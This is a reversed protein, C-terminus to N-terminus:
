CLMSVVEKVYANQVEPPRDLIIPADCTQAETVNRLNVASHKVDETQHFLRLVNPLRESRRARVYVRGMAAAAAAPRRGAGAGGIDHEERRPSEDSREDRCSQPTVTGGGLTLLGAGPTLSISGAHGGGGEDAALHLVDTDADCAVLQHGRSLREVAATRLAQEVDM